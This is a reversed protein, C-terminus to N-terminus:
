REHSGGHSKTGTNGRARPNLSEAALPTPQVGNSPLRSSSWRTKAEVPVGLRLSPTGQKPLCGPRPAVAVTSPPLLPTAVLARAAVPRRRGFNRPRCRKAAYPRLGIRAGARVRVSTRASVNAPKRLSRAVIVFVQTM